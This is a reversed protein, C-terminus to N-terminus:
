WKNILRQLVAVASVCEGYEFGSVSIGCGALAVVLSRVVAGQCLMNM